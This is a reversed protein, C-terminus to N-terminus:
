VGLCRGDGLDHAAGDRDAVGVAGVLQDDVEQQGELVAVLGDGREVLALAREELDGLADGAHERRGPDLHGGGDRRVEGEAAVLDVVLVVVQQSEGGAGLVAVVRRLLDHRPQLVGAHRHSAARRSRAAWRCARRPAPRPRGARRARRRPRRRRGPGAPSGQPRCRCRPSVGPTTLLAPRARRRGAARRAARGAHAGAGRDAARAGARAARREHDARDLRDAAWRRARRDGTPEITVPPGFVVRVPARFRPVAKGKPLAAGTGSVAIPVVPAGSRLALYALGDTISDFGGSGRTGEPFVGLAGGDAVLDLTATERSQLHPLDLLGIPVGSSTQELDAVSVVDPLPPLWPSRQPPYARGADRILLTATESVRETERAPARATLPVTWPGLRLTWQREGGPRVNGGGAGARVAYRQVDIVRAVRARLERRQAATKPLRRQAALARARGLALTLMTEQEVPLGVRLEEESRTMADDTTPGSTDHGEPQPQQAGDTATVSGEETYPVGYHEFLQAEEDQSLEGEPAVNPANKVQDKDVQVQVDEGQPSAGALPVFSSNSGFLGTNVTAWEPKDTEHDVYLEDIKGIKEGSRDILTRGRWDYAYT